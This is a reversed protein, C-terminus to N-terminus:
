DVRNIDGWPLHHIVKWLECWDGGELCITSYLGWNFKIKSDSIAGFNHVQCFGSLGYIEGSMAM